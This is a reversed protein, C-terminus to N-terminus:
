GTESQPSVGQSRQQEVHWDEHARCAPASLWGFAELFWAYESMKVLVFTTLRSKIGALCRLLIRMWRRYLAPMVFGCMVVDSPQVDRLRICCHAPVSRLPNRLPVCEGRQPCERLQPLSSSYKTRSKYRQLWGLVSRNWVSM